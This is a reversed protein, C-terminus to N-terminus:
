TEVPKWYVLPLERGYRTLLVASVVTKGVDPGTGVIALSL